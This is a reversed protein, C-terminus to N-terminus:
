LFTMVRVELDQMDINWFPVLGNIMASLLFSSPQATLMSSDDGNPAVVLSSGQLLATSNFPCQAGACLRAVTHISIRSQWAKLSKVFQM